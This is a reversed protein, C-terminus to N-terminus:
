LETMSLTHKVQIDNISSPLWFSCGWDYEIMNMTCCSVITSLRNSVMIGHMCAAANIQLRGPAAPLSIVKQNIEVQLGAVQVPGVNKMHCGSYLAFTSESHMCPKKYVELPVNKRVGTLATLIASSSHSWTSWDAAWYCDSVNNHLGICFAKIWSLFSLRESVDWSSSEHWVQSLIGDLFYTHSFKCMTEFGLWVTYVLAIMSMFSTPESITSLHWSYVKLLPILPFAPIPQLKRAKTVGPHQGSFSTKRRPDYDGLQLITLLAIM